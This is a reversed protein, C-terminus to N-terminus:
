RIISLNKYWVNMSEISGAIQTNNFLTGSYTYGRKSFSCNMSPSLARAITYLTRIKKKQMYLEMEMLLKVALKQGRYHPLVAFDTLEANGNKFDTECSACAILKQQDFFGFYFVENFTSLLYAPDFIPFPYSTFVEQYLAAMDAVHNQNLKKFFYQSQISSRDIEKSNALALIADIKQAQKPIRRNNQYYKSMFFCDDCNKFFDPVFAEREFQRSEFLPSLNRPVKGIIKTYNNKVALKELTDITINEATQDISMIYIRNSAKGHQYIIGKNKVIQDIEM